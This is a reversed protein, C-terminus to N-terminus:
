FINNMQCIFDCIKSDRPKFMGQCLYRKQNQLAKPSFFHTMLDEIVLKYNMTIKNRYAQSKQEFVRLSYGELHNKKMDYMQTVTTPNQSNIIKEPLVLLKILSKSLRTKFITMYILVVESNIEGPNTNIDLKLSDQKKDPTKIITPNTKFSIPPPPGNNNLYYLLQLKM